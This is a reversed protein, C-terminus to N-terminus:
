RLTGIHTAPLLEGNAVELFKGVCPVLDEFVCEFPSVDVSAGSDVLLTLIPGDFCLPCALSTARHAHEVM